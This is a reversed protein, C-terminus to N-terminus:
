APPPVEVVFVYDFSADAGNTRLGIDGAAAADIDYGTTGDVTGRHGICDVHTPGAAAQTTRAQLTVWDGTMDGAFPVQNYDFGESPTGPYVKGADVEAGPGQTALGCFYYDDRAHYGLALGTSHRGQTPAVANVRVRVDVFVNGLAGHHVLQYAGDVNPQHATGDTFQWSDAGIVADWHVPGYFGEFMAIRDGATTPRPDCADGVGDGDVDAGTDPLHPCVDCVDGRGDKDHDHQDPNAITPCNDVVDPVGDGDTDLTPDIAADVGGGGGGGGGSAGGHYSCGCVLVSVMVWKM